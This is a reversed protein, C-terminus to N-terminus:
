HQPSSSQTQDPTARPWGSKPPAATDKANGANSDSSSSSNDVTHVVPGGASDNVAVRHSSSDGNDSPAGLAVSPDGVPAPATQTRTVTPPANVAALATNMFVLRSRVESGAYLIRANGTLDVQVSHVDSASTGDPLYFHLAYRQRLRQLTEQLAAARDVPMTDGGSDRAIQATGASHSPDGGMGVPGGPWTRGGGPFGIGGGGPWGGGRNTGWTGHRRQGGPYGELEYPAQLFSLVADARALASEVRPEDEEDQTHDDTLIVVARRADPRANDHVYDAARVLARTIRTGGGFDESRLIHHLAGVIDDHNGRFPLKVHTSTDFVMIAVRDKDALVGLAEYAAAAIREVHPRMSGSVDLLLLIDIPMSESAFNRIPLVKGNLRLVFDRAQLGTVALGDRDFVQVDVRSLSVDSKFVVTGNDKDSNAKRQEKNSQAFAQLAFLLVIPLALRLM